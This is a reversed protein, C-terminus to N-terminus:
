PSPSNPFGEGAGFSPYIERGVAMCRQVLERDLDGDVM